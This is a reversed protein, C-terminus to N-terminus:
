DNTEYYECGDCLGNPNIACRLYPSRANNRCTMDGISQNAKFVEAIEASSIGMLSVANNFANLEREHQRAWEEYRRRQVVELNKVIFYIAIGGGCLLGFLTFISPKYILMTLNIAIAAINVSIIFKKM